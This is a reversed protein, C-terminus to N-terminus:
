GKRTKKIAEEVDEESASGKPIKGKKKKQGNTNFGTFSICNDTFTILSSQLLFNNKRFSDSKLESPVFFNDSLSFDIKKINEKGFKRSGLIRFQQTPKYVSFDIFDELEKNVVKYAFEKTEHSNRLMIGDVVLHYSLKNPRHSTFVIIKPKLENAIDKIKEIMNLIMDDAKLKNMNTYETLDIDIDFYPKRLKHEIILEYFCREYLPVDEQYRQFHTYTKFMTFTRHTHQKCVILNSTTSDYDFHLIRNEKDKYLTYKWDM